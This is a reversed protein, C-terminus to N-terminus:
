EEELFSQLEELNIEAFWKATESRGRLHAIWAQDEPTLYRGAWTIENFQRKTEEAYYALAQFFLRSIPEEKWADFEDQDVM